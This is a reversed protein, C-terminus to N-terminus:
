HEASQDNEILWKWVPIFHITKNDAKESKETHRTLITGTQLNFKKMASILGTIERDKTKADSLEFSVQIAEKVKNKEIILFDVERQKDDKWYFVKQNQRLLELLVINELLRGNDDSLRFGMKNVLGTDIGYIKKPLFGQKKLSFDFQNIEILLFADTLYGVFTKATNPSGLNFQKKLANYSFEKGCNSILFLALDKFTKQDKVQHRVLIDKNIIDDYVKVLIDTNEQTWVEPFGGKEMYKEFASEIQVKDQTSRITKGANRFSLMEKFSFPFLPFDMHRGTLYTSIEKSLLEANSGTIFFKYGNEYLRNVFQNWGNKGQPEDLFFTKQDGFEKILIEHLVQFDRTEFDNLREDAFNLYFFGKSFFRDMVQFLLTSKGCRRVGTVVVASKHRM